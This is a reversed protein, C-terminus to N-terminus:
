AGRDSWSTFLSRLMEWLRTHYGKRTATQDAHTLRVNTDFGAAIRGAELRVERALERLREYGAESCYGKPGPAPYLHHVESCAIRIRDLFAGRIPISTFDDWEGYSREKEGRVFREILDATEIYEKGRDRKM